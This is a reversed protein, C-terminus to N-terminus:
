EHTRRGRRATKPRLIEKIEDFGKTMTSDLKAINTKLQNNIEVQVRMDTVLRSVVPTSAVLKAAFKQVGAYVTLLTLIAVLVTGIKRDHYNVKEKAKEIFGNM